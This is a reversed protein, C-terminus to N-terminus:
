NSIGTTKKQTRIYTLRMMLTLIPFRIEKSATKKITDFAKQCEKSWSCKAQKSTMRSLPSIIESRHQWMDRCCNILGIM